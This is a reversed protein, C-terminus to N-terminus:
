PKIEMELSIQQAVHLEQIDVIGTVLLTKGDITTKDGLKVTEEETHPYLCLIMPQPKKTTIAGDTSNKQQYSNTQHYIGTITVTQTSQERHYKDEVVRTFTYPKGEWEIRRKIKSELFLYQNM